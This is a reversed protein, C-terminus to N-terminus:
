KMCLIIKKRLSDSDLGVYKEMEKKTGGKDLFEHKLGINFLSYKQGSLAKNILYNTSGEYFQEILIVRENLNQNLTLADFPVITTYYLVTIDLDKTAELVFDLMDGYCILTADKGQRIILAKNLSTVIKQTHQTESIRYYTPHGNNYNNKILMDLEIANGPIIVEMNPISQLLMVDGPCHHTPGLAAYDYSAGVSIFNGNLNQYGFDIKLQEM